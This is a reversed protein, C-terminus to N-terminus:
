KEEENHTKDLTGMKATVESKFIKSLVFTLGFHESGNPCSPYQSASKKSLYMNLTKENLLYKQHFTGHYHISVGEQAGNLM